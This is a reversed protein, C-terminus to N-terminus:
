SYEDTFNTLFSDFGEPFLIKARKQRLKQDEETLLRCQEIQENTLDLKKGLIRIAELEKPHLKGDASAARFGNYILGMRNVRPSTLDLDQFINQVYECKGPQYAQLEDLRNQSVGVIHVLTSNRDISLNFVNVLLLLL